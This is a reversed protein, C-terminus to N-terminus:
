IRLGGRKAKNLNQKQPQPEYDAGEDAEIITRNQERGESGGLLERFLARYYVLAQRLEETDAVGRENRVAIQYAARYNEVVAPYDVSLDAASQESDIVPYGRRQMVEQILGNAEEVATKPDDVFRGQIIAWSDQYRRRDSPSLDVIDFQRVREERERLKAEAKERSGSHRVTRDYEPGFREKLRKSRKRSVVFSVLVGIIVVAAVFAITIGIEIEM